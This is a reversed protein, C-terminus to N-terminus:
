SICKTPGNQLHLLLPVSLNLTRHLSLKTIPIINMVSIKIYVSQVRLVWMLNGIMHGFSLSHLLLSSMLRLSWYGWM